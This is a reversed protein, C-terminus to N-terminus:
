NKNKIVNMLLFGIIAITDPIENAWPSGCFFFHPACPIDNSQTGRKRRPGRHGTNLKLYYLCKKIKLRCIGNIMKCSSM